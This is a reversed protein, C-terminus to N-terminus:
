SPMCQVTLKIRDLGMEDFGFLLLLSIVLGILGSVEVLSFGIFGKRYTGREGGRITLDLFTISLLAIIMINIEPLGHTGRDLLVFYIINIVLTGTTLRVAHKDLSGLQSVITFKM